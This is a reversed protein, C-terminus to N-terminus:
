EFKFNSPRIKLGAATYIEDIVKMMEVSEKPTTECKSKGLVEDCFAKLQYYYTSQGDSYVKETKKQGKIDSSIYHYFSPGLLNNCYVSGNEGIVKVSLLTPLISSRKFDCYMHGKSGNKMELDVDMSIDIEEKMMVPTAKTVKEVEGGFHLLSNVCYCGADMTIGGALDFKWRIDDDGFWLYYIYSPLSFEVDISKMKGIDKEIIEKLRKTVPHYRYHFAEVLSLNTQDHFKKVELAEKENSTFPKECLVHKGAKLSKITWEAHLGNPLPNYIADIEDSDILEQYSSFVKPIKYKKAYNKAKNIDRAAVAVVEVLDPLLKSPSIIASPAINAAGLIGLRVVKDSSM